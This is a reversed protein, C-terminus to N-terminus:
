DGFSRARFEPPYSPLQRASWPNDALHEIEDALARKGAPPLGDAQSPGRPWVRGPVRPQPYTVDPRRCSKIRRYVIRQRQNPCPRLLQYTATWDPHEAATHWEM